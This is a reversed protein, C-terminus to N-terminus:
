MGGFRSVLPPHVRYYQAGSQAFTARLKTTPAREKALIIARKPALALIGADIEEAPARRLADLKFGTFWTPRTKRKRGHDVMFFQLFTGCTRRKLFRRGSGVRSVCWVVLVM